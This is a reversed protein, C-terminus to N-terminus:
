VQAQFLFARLAGVADNALKPEVQLPRPPASVHLGDQVCAHRQHRELVCGRAELAVQDDVVREGDVVRLQKARSNCGRTIHTTAIGHRREGPAGGAQEVSM